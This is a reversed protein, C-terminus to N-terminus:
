ESILQELWEELEEPNFEFPGRGGRYIIIGDPAIVYLRSPFAAYRHCAEDTVDDLALNVAYEGWNVFDNAIEVREEFTEPQAYYIGEQADNKQKDVAKERVLMPWEGKGKVHAEKIYITLFDVNDSFRKQLESIFGSAAHRWPQCTFSGFILVLPKSGVRELLQFSDGSRIDRLQVNPAKQGVEPAKRLWELVHTQVFGIRDSDKMGELAGSVKQWLDGEGGEHLVVRLKDMLEKESLENGQGM